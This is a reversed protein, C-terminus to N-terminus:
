YINLAPAMHASFFGWSNRAGPFCSIIKFCSLSWFLYYRNFFFVVKRSLQNVTLMLCWFDIKNKNLKALKGCLTSSPCQAPFLHQSLTGKATKCSVRRHRRARGPDQKGQGAVDRRPVLGPQPPRQGPDGDAEGGGPSGGEAQVNCRWQLLEVEPLSRGASNQKRRCWLPPRQPVYLVNQPSNWHLLLCSYLQASFVFLIDSPSSLLESSTFTHQSITTTPHSSRSPNTLQGRHPPWAAATALRTVRSM